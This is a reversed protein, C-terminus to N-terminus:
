RRLLGGAVASSLLSRASTGAETVNALAACYSLKAGEAVDCTWWPTPVCSMYKCWTCLQLLEIRFYLVLLGAGLLLVYTIASLVAGVVQKSRLEGRADTHLLVVFGLLLGGFLGGLHAFNDVFPVLGIALNLAISFGLSCFACLGESVSLLHCNTILEALYAGLLGFLAGSAGVTVSQPTFLGSVVMSFVGGAVYIAAFRAHGAQRELDFGISRLMNMNVLLHVVGAHLWMPSLLRWWQGGQNILCTVKAGSAVLSDPTPGVLPNVSLPAIYGPTILLSYAFGALCGALILYGLWPKRQPGQKDAPPAAADASPASPPLARPAPAYHVDDPSAFGERGYGGGGGGSSRSPALQYGDGYGRTAGWEEVPYAAAGAGAPSGSAAAGTGYGGSSGRASSRRAGHLPGTPLEPRSIRRAPGSAAAASPSYASM